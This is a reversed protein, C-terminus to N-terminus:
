FKHSEVIGYFTATEDPIKECEPCVNFRIHTNERCEKCYSYMIRLDGVRRERKGRWQQKAFKSNRQPRELIEDVAKKIRKKNVPSLGKVKRDFPRRFIPNLM